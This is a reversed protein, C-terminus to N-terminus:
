GERLIRRGNPVRNSDENRITKIRNSVIASIVYSSDGRILFRQIKHDNNIALATKAAEIAAFIESANNTAVHAHCLGYSCYPNSYHGKDNPDPVFVGFSSKTKKSKSGNDRTSGDFSITVHEGGFSFSKQHVSKEKTGNFFVSKVKESQRQILSSSEIVDINVHRRSRSSVVPTTRDLDRM